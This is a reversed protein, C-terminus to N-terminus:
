RIPVILTVPHLEFGNRAGNKQNHIYDWFGIGVIDVTGRRPVRRLSDRAARFRTALTASTACEPSPLEAILKLTPAGPESLVLHWDGDDEVTIREVVARVRYTRFEHPRIRGNEPYVLEPVSLSALMQVTAAVPVTDVLAADKDAWVKVPWRDVGCSRRAQAAATRATLALFVTLLLASATLRM